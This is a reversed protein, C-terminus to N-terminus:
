QSLKEESFNQKKGVSAMVLICGLRWTNWIPVDKPFFLGLFSCLGLAIAEDCTKSLRLLGNHGLLSSIFICIRGKALFCM